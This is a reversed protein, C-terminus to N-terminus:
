KEPYNPYEKKFNAKARAFGLGGKTKAEFDKEWKKFNDKDNKKIWDLLDAKTASSVESTFGREKAREKVAEVDKYRKEVMYGAPIYYERVIEREETTIINEYVYVIKKKGQSVKFGKM